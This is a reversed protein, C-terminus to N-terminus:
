GRATGWAVAVVVVGFLGGGRGGGRGGERGWVCVFLFLFLVQLCCSAVAVAVVDYQEQCVLASMWAAAALLCLLGTAM